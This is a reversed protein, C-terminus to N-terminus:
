AELVEVFELEHGNPDRFYARRFRGDDPRNTPQIGIAALRHVLAEVAPHTFGLHHIRMGEDVQRAERLSDEWLSLYSPRDGDAPGFHVWRDGGPRGDWRVVWDPLLIQYFALTEDLDAVGVLAHELRIAPQVSAHNSSRASPTPTEPM